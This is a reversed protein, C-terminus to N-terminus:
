RVKVKFKVTKAAGGKFTVKCKIVASGKKKATIKGTKSVTAVKKGSSTYTIRSVYGTELKNTFKIQFTKGRKLTKSTTKLAVSAKLEAATKTVTVPISACKGYASVTIATEGSEVGYLTKNEYTAIGSDEVSVTYDAETLCGKSSWGWYDKVSLYIKLSSLDISKGKELTLSSKNLSIDTIYSDDVAIDVTAASDNAGADAQGSQESSFEQVWYDMGQYTVHGIGITTYGSDLM